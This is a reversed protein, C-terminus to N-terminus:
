ACGANVSFTHQRDDIDKGGFSKLKVKCPVDGPKAEDTAKRRGSDASETVYIFLMTQLVTAPAAASDSRM